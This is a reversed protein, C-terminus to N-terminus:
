RFNRRFKEVYEPVTAWGDSANGAKAMPRGSFWMSAADEWSGHQNYYQQMRAAAVAEQADPSALFEQTTMKVGLIEETWVPINFDMVQYKGYARAGTRTRPGIAQYNNSSEITGLANLAQRIEGELTPGVFQPFSTGEPLEPTRVQQVYRALMAETTQQQRKSQEGGEEIGSSVELRPNVLSPDSKQPPQFSNMRIEDAITNLKKYSQEYM